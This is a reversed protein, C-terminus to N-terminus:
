PQERDLVMTRSRFPWLDAVSAGAARLIFHLIIPVLLPSFMLIGLAIGAALDENVGIALGGNLIQEFLWELWQPVNWLVSYFIITPPFILIYAWPFVASSSRAVKIRGSTIWSVVASLCYGAYGVSVFALAVALIGQIFELAQDVFKTDAKAAAEGNPRRDTLPPPVSQVLAPDAEQVDIIEASYNLSSLDVDAPHRASYCTQWKYGPLIVADSELNSAYDLQNSTRGPYTGVISFVTRGIPRDSENSFTVSLPYTSMCPVSFGASGDANELLPWGDPMPGEYHHVEASVKSELPPSFVSELHEDWVIAGLVFVALALGLLFLLAAARWITELVKLLVDGISVPSSLVGVHFPGDWFAFIISKLKRGM